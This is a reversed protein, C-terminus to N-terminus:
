SQICLKYSTTDNAIFISLAFMRAATPRNFIGSNYYIDLNFFNKIFEIDLIYYYVHCVAATSGSFATKDSIKNPSLGRGRYQVGLDGSM